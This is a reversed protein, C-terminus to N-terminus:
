VKIVSVVSVTVNYKICDAWYNSASFKNRMVMSIGHKMTGALAIMGAVSHYLPLPSYIIDTKRCGIVTTCGGSALIYRCFCSLYFVLTCSMVRKVYQFSLCFIKGACQVRKKILSGVTCRYRVCDKWFNSASFRVRLTVTTGFLFSSGLALMGASSHYLPLANYLVDTPQLGGLYRTVYSAMIYSTMSSTM